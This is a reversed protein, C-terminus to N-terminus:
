PHKCLLSSCEWMRLNRTESGCFLLNFGLRFWGAYYVVQQVNSRCCVDTTNKNYWVCCWALFTCCFAARTGDNYTCESAASPLLHAGMWEMEWDVAPSPWWRHVPVPKRKRASKIWAAARPPHICINEVARAGTEIWLVWEHTVSSHFQLFFPLAWVVFTAGVDALICALSLTTQPFVRIQTHLHIGRPGM